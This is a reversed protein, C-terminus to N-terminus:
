GQLIGISVGATLGWNIKQVEISQISDKVIVGQFAEGFMGDRFSDLHGDVHLVERNDSDVKYYNGGSVRITKGDKRAVFVTRTTDISLEEFKITQSQICGCIAVSFMLLILKELPVGNVHQHTGIKL